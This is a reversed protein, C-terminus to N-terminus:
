GLPLVEEINFYYRMDKSAEDVENKTDLENIRDEDSIISLVIRAGQNREMKEEATADHKFLTMVAMGERDLNIRTSNEEAIYAMLTNEEILSPVITAANPSGDENVTSLVVAGYESPNELAKNLEDGTISSEEYYYTTSASSITDVSPPTAEGGCGTLVILLASFGILKKM